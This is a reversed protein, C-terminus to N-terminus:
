TATFKKAVKDIKDGIKDQVQQEIDIPPVGGNSKIISRAAKAEIEILENLSRINRILKKKGADTQMLTPVTQMFLEVEKQTIRSGFYQKANKVFESSLKEFEEIDEPNGSWWKLGGKAIEAIPATLGAIYPAHELKSLSSWIAANPLNGKDILQEMRGLRLNAEKAAKEKEKLSDVYPKTEKLQAQRQTFEFKERERKEKPNEFVRGIERAREPTLEPQKEGQQTGINPQAPQAIAGLGMQEQPQQFAGTLAELNGLASKREEPSLNSLFNATSKGVIPEWTQAFNSREQQQEHRKVLQALKLGALTGLGTGLESGFSEERPIIQM